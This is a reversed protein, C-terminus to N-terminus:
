VMKSLLPASLFLMSVFVISVALTRAKNRESLGRFLQGALAIENSSLEAITKNKVLSIFTSEGLSIEDAGPFVVQQIIPLDYVWFIIWTSMVSLVLGYITQVSLEYIANALPEPVHGEAVSANMTVRMYFLFALWLGIVIVATVNRNLGKEKEDM